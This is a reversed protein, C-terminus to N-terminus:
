LFGGWYRLFPVYTKLLNGLNPLLLVKRNKANSNERLIAKKSQKREHFIRMIDRCAHLFVAFLGPVVLLCVPIVCIFRFDHVLWPVLLIISISGFLVILELDLPENKRPLKGSLSGIRTRVTGQRKQSNAAAKRNTVNERACNNCSFGTKRNSTGPFSFVRFLQPHLTYM